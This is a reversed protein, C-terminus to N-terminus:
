PGTRFTAQVDGGRDYYTFKTAVSFNHQQVTGLTQGGSTITMDTGIAFFDEDVSFANVEEISTAVARNGAGQVPPLANQGCGAVTVLQGVILATTLTMEGWVGSSNEHNKNLNDVSLFETKVETMFASYCFLFELM